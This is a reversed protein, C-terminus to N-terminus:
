RGFDIEPFNKRIQAHGVLENLIVYNNAERRIRGAIIAPNIKLEDALNIISEENRKYRALKMEWEPILMQCALSDADRELVDPDAELDDFIQENKGKRLHKDLHVM